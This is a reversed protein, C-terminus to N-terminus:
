VIIFRINIMVIKFGCACFERTIKDWQARKEEWTKRDTIKCEVIDKYKDVLGLLCDVEDTTFIKGRNKNTTNPAQQGKGKAKGKGKNGASLERNIEEADM